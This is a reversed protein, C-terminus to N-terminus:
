LMTEKRVLEAEFYTSAAATTTEAGRLASVIQRLGDQERYLTAASRAKETAVDSEQLNKAQGDRSGIVIGRTSYWAVDLSNNIRTSSYEAAGYPLLESLASEGAIDSGSLWYTRDATAIYIGAEVPEVLTIGPLPIYGRMPNHWHFAYAESYYLGHRDATLLRANHSRVIKGPPM